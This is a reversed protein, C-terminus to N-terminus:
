PASTVTLLTTGCLTGACASITTTGGAVGYAAGSNTADSTITAVTPNASSWVVSSLQQTSSDSFTGTAIFQVSSGLSLSPTSPTLAISELSSPALTLPAYIEAAALVSSSANDHGGAILVNGNPLLTASELDGPTVLPAGAAFAGSSPAYVESAASNYVSGAILVSGNTLGTATGLWCSEALSGTTAFTGTAPNFLEASALPGTTAYNYGNAILVLGTNLMTATAGSRATNLNGTTPTFIGTAPNYLEATNMAGSTNAGGAILVMGNPLLTATADFRADNLPGTVTFNDMAPNYLEASALVTSGGYGGAILVEGNPLITATHEYRATNLNGTAAFAATTPNFLEASALEGDGGSGGAILVLGSNLLTGTHGERAVVLNGTYAFAGTVPNYLEASALEGLAGTPGPVPGIGGAVLVLGSTLLNASHYYRATNLNGTASFPDEVTVAASGVISGSTATVTISGAAAGALVGSTSVTAFGTPSTAWTATNTLNQTTNNSYTGTATLQEVAGVLITSPNPTVAISLLAAATGNGALSVKQPSNSATDEFTLTGSQGGTVTPTFTLGVTCTAGGLVVSGSSGCTNSAIAFDGTVAISSFTVSATQNNTLTVTQPASTEDLPLKGFSLTAPSVSVPAIGSGTLKATQPSNTASDTVTLTGTLTGAATPTFTILITCTAGKALTKPSLPCTGGSQAFAGTAAIKTITLTATTVNELKATMASSTTGELQAPFSLTAPTLTVSTVAQIPVALAPTLVFFLFFRRAIRDDLM